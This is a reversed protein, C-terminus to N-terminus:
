GPGASWGGAPTWKGKPAGPLLVPLLFARIRAVAEPFAPASGELRTRKVFGSWLALRHPSVAFGETLALPPTEVPWAGRRSLSKEFATRLTAFDFDFRSALFWVDYFDKMRSNLEGHEIMAHLKEAIATEKPVMRVRPPSAGLLVPFTEERAPPWVADGVGVDFRLAIRVRGLSARISLQSGGYATRARIPAIALSDPDFVLGDEESCDVSAIDRFMELLHGPSADGRCLFDTDITPRHGFGGMWVIFMNGGKLTLARRHPSKGLRRLFGETAYRVLTERPDWANRANAAKLRAMVSAPLNASM